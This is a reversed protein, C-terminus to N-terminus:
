DYKSNEAMPPDAKPPPIQSKGGMGLVQYRIGLVGVLWLGHAM